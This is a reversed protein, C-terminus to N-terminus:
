PQTFTGRNQVFQVSGNAPTNPFFTFEQVSGGFIDAVWNITTGTAAPTFFGSLSTLDPITITTAGNQFNATALVTIQNNTTAGTAWGIAAQDAVAALGTFGSYVFTFTPLKAAVPGAFTWPTPLALTFAGGGSSTTTTIGVAQNHTATDTTNSEYSYFDGSQTAATPVAEYPQPNTSSVSSNTLLFRTGNATHYQVSAEPPSVFGAPVNTLTLNQTTTADGPPLIIIGAGGNLAGPVTQSRLMKVGLVNNSSDIAVAAVDNTGTPMSASFPGSGVKAGIGQNGLIEIDATGAISSSASGTAAGTSPSGLCSTTISTADQTTAEIVVESNLTGLGAVPPCVYAIAYRTNGSAVPITVQNGTATATFAGTGTQTAVALPTGGIFNVTVTPSSGGGFTGNGKACGAVLITILVLAVALVGSRTPMCKEKDPELFNVPKPGHALCIGQAVLV